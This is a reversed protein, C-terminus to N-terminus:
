LGGQAMAEESYTVCTRKALWWSPESSGVFYGDEPDPIAPKTTEGLMQDDVNGGAEQRQSKKRSEPIDSPHSNLATGIMQQPDMNGEDAYPNCLQRSLEESIEYLPTNEPCVAFLYEDPRPDGSEGQGATGPSSPHFEQLHEYHRLLSTFFKRAVPDRTQCFELVDIARKALEVSETCYDQSFGAIELQTAHYILIM